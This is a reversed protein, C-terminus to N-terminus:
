NIISQKIKNINIVKVGVSSTFDNTKCVTKKRLVVTEKFDVEKATPSVILKVGALTHKAKNPVTKKRLVITEISWMTPQVGRTVTKKRLATTQYFFCYTAVVSVSINRCLFTRQKGERFGVSSLRNQFFPSYFSNHQLM